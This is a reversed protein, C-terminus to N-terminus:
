EAEATLLRTPINWDYTPRTEGNAFTVGNESVWADRDQRKHHYGLSVINWDAVPKVEGADSIGNANEDRWLALGELENGAIKGDGNDDLAALALYGNDWPTLWTVSGFLQFGSVVERGDQSSGLGALRSRPHDM